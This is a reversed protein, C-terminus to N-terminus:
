SSFEITNGAMKASKISYNQILELLPTDGSVNHSEGNIIITINKMTTDINSQCEDQSMNVEM